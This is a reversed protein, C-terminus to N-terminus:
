GGLSTIANQARNERYQNTENIHSQSQIALGSIDQAAATDGGLRAPCRGFGPIWCCRRHWRADISGVSQGPRRLRKAGHLRHLGGRAGCSPIARVIESSIRVM